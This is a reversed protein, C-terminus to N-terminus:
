GQRGIAPLKSPFQGGPMAAQHKELGYIYDWIQRVAPAAADAGYGASPLMVLVV